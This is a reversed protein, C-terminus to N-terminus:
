LYNRGAAFARRNTELFKEKVCLSIAKEWALLPLDLGNSIAGLIVINAARIDGLDAAVRAADIYVLRAFARRLLAEAEADEPYRAGGSSVTVPMIAQTSVVALGDPRIYDSFRLAEVKELSGLIHAGNRSVLPSKVEKGYRIQAMVSGGRQAMGHVENTKVDYGELMAAQALIESALLIGQGGVGVLVISKTETVKVREQADEKASRRESM